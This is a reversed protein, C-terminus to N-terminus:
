LGVDFKEMQHNNYHESSVLGAINFGQSIRYVLSYSRTPIDNLIVDTSLHIFLALAASLAVAKYINSRRISIATASLIAVYEWGHFLIYMKDSKLFQYGRAFYDFNLSLGFVLFYDILHDLDVLVGALVATFLCQYINGKTIKWAILGAALALVLHISLHLSLSMQGSYQNVKYLIIYYYRNILLGM